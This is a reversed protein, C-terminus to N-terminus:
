QSECGQKSTLLLERAPKLSSQTTTLQFRCLGRSPKSRSVAMKNTWSRALLRVLEGVKWGAKVAKVAELDAQVAESDVESEVQGEPVVTISRALNSGEVRESVVIVQANDTLAVPELVSTISVNTNEGLTATVTALETAVTITNGDISEITGAAQAAESDERGLVARGAASSSVFGYSRKGPRRKM